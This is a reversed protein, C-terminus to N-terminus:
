HTPALHDLRHVSGELAGEDVEDAPEEPDEASHLHGHKEAEGQGCIVEVAHPAESGLLSL